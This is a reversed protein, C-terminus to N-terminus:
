QKLGNLVNEMENTMALRFKLEVRRSKNKDEEGEIIIPVSESKGIASIKDRLVDKYTFDGFEDSLIYSVISFARAQSLELNYMYSGDSDTHGEIIISEINERNAENLLVSAYIPIIAQLQQKFEPKLEAKDYDFLLDSDFKIAGSQPDIEVNVGQEQFAKSLNEIVEREYGVLSDILEQKEQIEKEKAQLEHQKTFMMSVLILLIVLLITTLIDTFSPWFNGEKTNTKFLRDYKSNMIRYVGKASTNAHFKEIAYGM